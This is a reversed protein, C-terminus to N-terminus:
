KRRVPAARKVEKNKETENKEAKLQENINACGDSVKNGDDMLSWLKEFARVPIFVGPLLVVSGVEKLAAKAPIADIQPDQMPGKVKVPTISSFFRKKQKPILVIDLTEEGLNMKIKGGLSLRPGDVLLTESKVKGANVAFDMVLCNLNMYQKRAVTKSLVWGFVDVSLLEIYKQPIRANELGLSVSGSLGSAMEHPSRGQTQLDLYMNSYGQIPVQDQVQAMLPGLSVDDSIIVLRYEPIATAWLDLKIDTNGGEFVFKLPAISLHGNHLQLTSKVSDIVRRGNEVEDISLVLDLDFDNLFAINLPERSFVHPRDPEEGSPEAPIHRGSSGMGFDALHLVPVETSGNLVLKGDQLHGSIETTSTTSGLTAKGQYRLRGKAATLLGQMRYSGIGTLNLDLTEGLKEM